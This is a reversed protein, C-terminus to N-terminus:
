HLDIEVFVSNSAKRKDASTTFLYVCEIDQAKLNLCSILVSGSEATGLNQSGLALKGTTTKMFAVVWDTAGDYGFNTSCTYNVTIGEADVTAGTVNLMPLTGRAVILKRYDIKPVDSSTDICDPLNASIFVNYASLKSPRNPFGADPIGGFSYYVDVM